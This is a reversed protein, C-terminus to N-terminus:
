VNGESLYVVTVFICFQMTLSPPYKLWPSMMQSLIEGGGGGPCSVFNMTIANTGYCTSKELELQLSVQCNSNLMFFDAIM